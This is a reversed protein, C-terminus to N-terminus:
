PAAPAGDTAAPTEKEGAMGFTGPPPSTSMGPPLAISVGIALNIQAQSERDKMSLYQSTIDLIQLNFLKQKFEIAIEDGVGLNQAGILIQKRKPFTGRIDLKTVAEQLIERHLRQQEAQDGAVSDATSSSETLKVERVEVQTASEPAPTKKESNPKGVLSEPLYKYALNKISDALATLGAGRREQDKIARQLEEEQAFSHSAIALSGLTLLVFIRQFGPTHSKM